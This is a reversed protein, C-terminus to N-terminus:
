GKAATTLQEGSTRQTKSLGTSVMRYVCFVALLLLGPEIIHRYRSQPFTIYYVAPFFIVLTAFLFSGPVRKRVALWLGGFSLMSAVMFMASKVAESGPGPIGIWFFVFRRVCLEAFRGPHAAIWERALRGQESAYPLEGMRKYQEFLVPDDYSYSTVWWGQAEPNNGGRLNPGLGTRLLLPEGFVVYNRVLWPSLTIWFMATGLLIPTVYRKQQRYLRLLLWCGAFPLWILISPNTLGIVGWFVGYGFWHLLRDDDRLRLTLLFAVSLLFTSLTTDWFWYISYYISTPLLAWIWGSWTAITKNFVQQGVRYIAWSTLAAVTSNFLLIAFAAAHSNIGLVLFSITVVWPYLPALWASPGAGPFLVYGHGMALSYAIECSEFVSWHSPNFRYCHLVVVCLVRVLLGVGVMCAPSHLIRFVLARM